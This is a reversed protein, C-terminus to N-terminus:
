RIGCLGALGNDRFNTVCQQLAVDAVWSLHNGSQKLMFDAMWVFCAMKGCCCFKAIPDKAWILM